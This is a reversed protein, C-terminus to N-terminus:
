TSIYCLMTTRERSTNYKRPWELLENGYCDYNYTLKIYGAVYFMILDERLIDSM